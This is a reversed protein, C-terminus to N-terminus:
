KKASRQVQCNDWVAAFFPELAASPDDQGLNFVGQETIDSLCPGFSRQLDDPPMFYRGRVGEMGAIWRYPGPFGAANLFDAAAKLSNAWIPEQLIILSPRNRLALTNIAWVEGDKFAFAVNPTKDQAIDFCMGVGDASAVNATIGNVSALPLTGVGGIRRMLETILVTKTPVLNTMVRLWMAPGGNLFYVAPDRQPGLFQSEMDHAVGLPEKEARFRAEGFKPKRPQRLPPEPPKPRSALYEESDLIARLAMELENSLENRVKTRTQADADDPLNYTIPFRKTKLDFPLQEPEGHAINMVAVIRNDGLVRLAFGHEILVNPNPLLDDEVSTGVFTLDSVFIAAKAIKKLITDFIPPSGPVNRTDRDLQIRDGREPEELNMNADSIRDIAEQLARDIFNRGPRTSQWSFFVTTPM